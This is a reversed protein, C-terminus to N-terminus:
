RARDTVIVGDRRQQSTAGASSIIMVGKEFISDCKFISSVLEIEDIHTQKVKLNKREDEKNWSAYLLPSVPKSGKTQHHFM